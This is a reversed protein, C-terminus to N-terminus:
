KTNVDKERVVNNHKRLAKIRNRGKLLLWSSNDSFLFHQRGFITLPLSLFSERCEVHDRYDSPLNNCLLQLRFSSFDAKEHEVLQCYHNKTRTVEMFMTASSLTSAQMVDFRILLDVLRKISLLEKYMFIRHFFM